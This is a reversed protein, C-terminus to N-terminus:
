GRLERLEAASAEALQRTLGSVFVVMILVGAVIDLFIGAEVIFPFTAVLTIAGLFVGNEVILWGILQAVTHRRVVMSLSGLLIVATSLPVVAAAVTGHPLLAPRTVLYAFATLAGGAILSTSLGTSMAADRKLALRRILLRRAAAPIAIGKIALTLAALIWLETSHFAVASTAAAFSLVVSQAGYYALYRNFLKSALCAFALLLILVGSLDLLVGAASTASLSQMGTVSRDRVLHGRRGPRAHVRGGPVRRDPLVAAQRVLHRAYGRGSYELVRSEEIMSIETTGGPAEIPIRGNDVLVIMFFAVLGLLHTPLVVVYPSSAVAHNMLYPNDSASVAGVTFFVLILAPEAMSGIWSARSSGLGGYPSATDLGSLSIVFGALTLVFAGGILDALFALPLPDSTIIPVIVSVTLYCAFAVFPAGRFVWSAQDSVASGKRLLKALDRYPQLVSPGRKSAVVAEARSLVGAYLPALTLVVLSQLVQILVPVVRAEGAYRFM